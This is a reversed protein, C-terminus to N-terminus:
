GHGSVVTPALDPMEVVVAVLDEEARTTHQEGATWLAAQGAGIPHWVGDDGCVQGRGSVVLFLQDVVTPHRGIEGGGAVRLVTVAAAEGRVLAQARLGRSDYRTIDRSQEPGVEIIQV